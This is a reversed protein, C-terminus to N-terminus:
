IKIGYYHEKMKTELITVVDNRKQSITFELNSFINIWAFVKKITDNVTQINILKLKKSFSKKQYTVLIWFSDRFTNLKLQYSSYLLDVIISSDILMIKKKLM